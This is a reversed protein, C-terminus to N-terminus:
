RAVAAGGILDPNFFIVSVMMQYNPKLGGFLWISPSEFSRYTPIKYRYRLHTANACLQLCHVFQR